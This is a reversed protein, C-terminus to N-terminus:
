SANACGVVPIDAGIIQGLDLLLDERFQDAVLQVGIPTNEIAGTTVTLGPLGMMPIGIQLTQAEIM